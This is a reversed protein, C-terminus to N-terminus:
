LHLSTPVPLTAAATVRFPESVFRSRLLTGTFVLAIISVIAYVAVALIFLKVMNASPPWGVKDLIWQIIAGVLLIVICDLAIWGLGVILSM